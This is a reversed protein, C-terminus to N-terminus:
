RYVSDTEDKEGTIPNAHFIMEYMMCGVLFICVGLGLLALIIPFKIITIIAGLFASVGIFGLIMVLIFRLFFNM